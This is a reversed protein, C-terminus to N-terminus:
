RSKTWYGSLEGNGYDHLNEIIVTSGAVPIYIRGYDSNSIDKANRYSLRYLGTMDDIDYIFSEGEYDSFIIRDNHYTYIYEGRNVSETKEHEIVGAFTGILYSYDDSDVSDRLYIRLEVSSTHGSSDKDSSGSVTMEYLYNGNKNTYVGDPLAEYRTENYMPTMPDYTCASLLLVALTIILITKKM